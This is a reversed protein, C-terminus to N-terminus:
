GAASFRGAMPLGMARGYAPAIRAVRGASARIAALEERAIALQTELFDISHQRRALLAAARARAVEDAAEAGLAALGAVLPEARAQIEAVADFDGHALSAAERGVLDDLASLLRSFKQRPAEM